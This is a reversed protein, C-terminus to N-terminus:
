KKAKSAIEVLDGQLAKNDDRAAKLENKLDKVQEDRDNVRAVLAANASTM